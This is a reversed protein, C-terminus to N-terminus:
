NDRRMLKIVPLNSSVNASTCRSKKTAYNINPFLLVVNASVDRYEYENHVKCSQDWTRENDNNVEGRGQRMPYECKIADKEYLM